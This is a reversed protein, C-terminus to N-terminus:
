KILKLFQLQSKSPKHDYEIWIRSARNGLIPADMILLGWHYNELHIPLYRLSQYITIM